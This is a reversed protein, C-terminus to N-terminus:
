NYLVDFELVLMNPNCEDNVGKVGSFESAYKSYSNRNAYIADYVEKSGAMIHATRTGDKAAKEIEAKIAKDASDVDNYVYGNKIFYNEATATCAPPTFYTLYTGNSLQKQSVHMHTINHIWKDPVLFYKYRLNKYNAKELIPDDWTCDLNYWEGDVDVVNWAHTEGKDNEGAVVMCNIGAKDCLYQIGKAYGACQINGQAEGSGFANYISSNYNMTDENLEFTSNLVLYDHFVKLKEYTSSKGSAEKVLKDAVADISKQMTNIVDADKTTYFLKGVKIKSSMYFLQPEQIYVLGYIKSWEELSYADEACIKYRLNEIGSKIEDYLKKEDSTLTDYAYRTGTYKSINVEKPATTGTMAAALEEPSITQDPSPETMVPQTLAEGNNDTVASGDFDTVVETEVSASTASVEEESSIEGGANDPAESEAPDSDGGIVNISITESASGSNTDGGSSKCGAAFMSLAMIVALAACTKKSNTIKM